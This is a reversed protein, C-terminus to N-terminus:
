PVPLEVSVGSLGALKGASKESVALTPEVNRVGEGVSEVVGAAEHGLLFPFEDNIGGERYTLDTHCVGCAQIDVVVEGPGPDPIVVDVVEVPDGKKRSIVGRVTQSM